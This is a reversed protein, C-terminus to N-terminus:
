ARRLAYVVLVVLLILVLLGVLGGVYMTEDEKEKFSCGGM